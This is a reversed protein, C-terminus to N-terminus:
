FIKNNSFETKRKPLFIMFHDILSSGLNMDCSSIKQVIQSVSYTQYHIGIVLRQAFMFSINHIKQWSSTIFFHKKLNWLYFLKKKPFIYDRNLFILEFCCYVTHYMVMLVTKIIKYLMIIIRIIIIYGCLPIRWKNHSSSGKSIYFFRKSLM